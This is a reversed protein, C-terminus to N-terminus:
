TCQHVNQNTLHINVTGADPVKCSVYTMIRTYYGFISLTVVEGPAGAVTFVYENGSYTIDKFRTESMTVVKNLEGLVATGIGPLFPAIIWYQFDQPATQSARIASSGTFNQGDFCNGNLDCRAAVFLGFDSRPKYNKSPPLDQGMIYASKKLDAILVYYWTLGAVQQLFICFHRVPHIFTQHVM